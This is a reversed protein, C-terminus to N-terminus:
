IEIEGRLYTLAEGRLKVRDGQAECIVEGGRASLQQATLSSRGLKKSWYTAMTTHASGTVPDEDIGAVPFFCRSVFDAQEGPATVLAGRAPLAAVERFDPKVGRVVGEGAVMAMYDDRGRWLELVDCGLAAAVSAKEPEASSLEDSPFDMELQAGLNLVTLDGSRSSFVVSDSDWGLESFLVHASALTAHGCLDVEIAPTFWRLAVKEEAPIIFATESLQNEMAIAQMTEEPLWEGLPVVAAPNGTFVKSAFADIQYLPLKMVFAPERAPGCNVSSVAVGVTVPATM